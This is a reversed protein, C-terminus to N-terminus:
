KKPKPVNVQGLFPNSTSETTGRDQVLLVDPSNESSILSETQATPVDEHNSTTSSQQTTSNTVLASNPNTAGKSTADVPSSSAPDSYSLVPRLQWKTQLHVQQWSSDLQNLVSEEGRVVFWWSQGRNGNPKSKFKRKISLDTAPISTISHIAHSVASVTVFKYTGWVKRAGKVPVLDPRPRNRQQQQQQDQSPPSTPAQQPAAHPRNNRKGRSTSRTVQAYSVTSDKTPRSVAPSNQSERLEAVLRSLAANEERLKPIISLSQQLRRIELTLEAVDSQLSAHSCTLCNFPADSTTLTVFLEQPVSACGRHYWQQCKGDCFIAEEKGDVIRQLCVGCNTKVRGKSPM